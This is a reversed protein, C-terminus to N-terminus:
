GSLQYSLMCIFVHLSVANQKKQLEELNDVINEDAVDLATQGQLACICLAKFDISKM